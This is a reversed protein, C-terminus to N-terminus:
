EYGRAECMYLEMNLILIDSSELTIDDDRDYAAIRDFDLQYSTLRIAPNLLIMFDLLEKCQERSGRVQLRLNACRISDMKTFKGNDFLTSHVYPELRLPPDAINISLSDCFMGRELVIRTLMRDIDESEMPAYFYKVTEAFAEQRNEHQKRTAPLLMAKEELAAWKAEAAEIDAKLAKNQRNTPIMVYNGILVVVLLFLLITLLNRDRRTMNQM